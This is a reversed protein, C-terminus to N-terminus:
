YYAVYAADIEECEATRVGLRGAAWSPAGSRLRAGLMGVVHGVRGLQGTALLAAALVAAVAAVTLARTFVAWSSAGGEAGGEEIVDAVLQTTTTGGTGSAKGAVSPGGAPCASTM